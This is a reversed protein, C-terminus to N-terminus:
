LAGAGARMRRSLESRRAQLFALLRMPYEPEVAQQVSPRAALAERWRQVRPYHEFFGGEKIAEFADFYRFVPAFAADVICFDAGAFYPGPAPLVRELQQIRAKLVKRQEDFAGAEPAAYYAAITHLVSSGFEIWARHRARELANRPHLHPAFAEDLFECIVASEFIAEGGALLVPTKGLPSVATFWGPKNSLDVCRRSFPVQKELLVIAARQVYPCLVHSVLTLKLPFKGAPEQAAAPVPTLTM